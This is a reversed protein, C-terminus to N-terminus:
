LILNGSLAPYEKMIFLQLLFQLCTLLISNCWLTLTYQWSNQKMPKLRCIYNSSCISVFLYCKFAVLFFNMLLSLYTNVFISFTSEKIQCQVSHIFVIDIKYSKCGGCILKWLKYTQWFYCEVLFIMYWRNWLPLSTNIDFVHNKNM